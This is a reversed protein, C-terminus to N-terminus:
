LLRKRCEWQMRDVAFVAFRTFNYNTENSNRWFDLLLPKTAPETFHVGDYALFINWKGADTFRTGLMIILLDTDDPFASDASPIERGNQGVNCVTWSIEAVLIDAWGSDTEYHGGFYGRSDYGYTNPAGFRIVYERYKEKKQISVNRSTNM